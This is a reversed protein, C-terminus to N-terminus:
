SHGGDARARMEISLYGKEAIGVLAVPAAVGPVGRVIASGEDLVSELRVGRSQLLAAIKQAGGRGGGEEDDGFALYITRAPAFGQGLLIEAAELLGLVGVKFDMAGRGWLFGDAIRGEFAPHTWSAETGPEVPVVDMHAMLLIPKESGSGRWTYLLAGTGVVERELTAHVRPFSRELHERLARFAAVDDRSSDAHSITRFRLAAALRGAAAAADVPVLDAKEAAPQVSRMSAARAGLVAALAALAAAILLLARKM